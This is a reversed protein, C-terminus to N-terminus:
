RAATRFVPWSIETRWTGTDTTDYPSVLYTERIPGDVGLAHATVWSGLAGYSLDIDDHGGVHLVVALEAAPTELPGVRGTTVPARDVPVYVVVDGEGDTFFESAYLGGSPGSARLGQDALCAHIEAFATNWWVDFVDHTVTGSVAAVLVAPVSRLEIPTRATPPELLARLSDVARRTQVLQGELRDLHASILRNRIAADPAALVAKVEPVPMGLDRFRRIVQATPVQDLSYYRYGSGAVLVPELLGVEHYHRLTKVGLHTVRSFDGISLDRAPDPTM